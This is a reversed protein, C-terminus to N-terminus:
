RNGFELASLISDMEDHEQTENMDTHEVLTDNFDGTQTKGNGFHHSKLGEVLDSFQEENKFDVSEALKRLKTSENMSLDFSAESLVKERKLAINEKRIAMAQRQIKRIKEDQEEIKSELNEVVDVKGEPVEIYHEEFVSRIGSVFSESLDGKIGETIAIKNEEFYNEVVYGMYDNVKEALEERNNEIGETLALTFQLELDAAIAELKTNVASEFIAGLKELFEPSAGEVIGSLREIDESMDLDFAEMAKLKVNSALDGAQRNQNNQSQYKNVLDMIAKAQPPTLKKTANGGKKISNVSDETSTFKSEGSDVKNKPLPKAKTASNKPEVQKSDQGSKVDLKQMVGNWASPNAAEELGDEDEDEEEEDAYEEDEDEMDAEEDEDSEEADMDADEIEDGEDELDAELDEIESLQDLLDKLQDIIEGADSELEAEADEEDELEDDFEPEEADDIDELEEDGDLDVDVKDAADAGYVTVDAGDEDNEIDPNLELTNEDEEDYM